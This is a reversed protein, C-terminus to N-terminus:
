VIAKQEKYSSLLSAGIFIAGILGTITESIEFVTNINMIVALGLIAWFAGHELYRYQDITGKEVLLLTLSRVFMAGIGLGIAMIFINNTLALAGLVGDFSFSADLVELYIFASLGSRIMASSAEGEELGIFAEMGDVIIFTILGWLSAILFSAAEADTSTYSIIKSTLLSIFLALAIQIAEIKGLFILKLEITKLWHIEKKHDLFFKLAVMMLFSQGFGMVGSHVSELAEKYHEPDNVALLLAALPNIGLAIAVIVLPFVMRMCFVAIGMGWTVFRHQWIADMGKLVQANVVANDFSLSVELVSLVLVIWLAEFGGLFFGLLLGIATVIFSSTFHKMM